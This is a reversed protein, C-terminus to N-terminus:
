QALRVHSGVDGRIGVMMAAEIVIPHRYFGHSTSDLKVYFWASLLRKTLMRLITKIQFRRLFMVPCMHYEGFLCSGFTECDGVRHEELVFIDSLRCDCWRIGDDICVVFQPLGDLSELVGFIICMEFSQFPDFINHLCAILGATFTFSGLTSCTLSVCCTGLTLKSVVGRLCRGELGISQQTAVFCLMWGFGVGM